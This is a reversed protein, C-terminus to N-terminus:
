RDDAYGVLEAYGRGGADDAGVRGKVSVAGEWYRPRTGLEQDALVPHLTLDLELVPVRLRWAAPYTGGRPSTWRDLVDLQVDESRIARARGDPTVWTGASHPDRSGDRLRLSYFMLASGEDLQLAFWDWGQQNAGLAGSGWERDLWALGNVKVPQEQSRVIEGRVAMRPVSYYYSAAGPSKRSLGREGNLVPALLPQLKLHIRFEECAAELRWHSEDAELRWNDVWVRLPEERAGALGLADRGYRQAFHFQRREIDTVAFHALYIQNTRWASADDVRAAAKPPALAYRFFTLEFGFREGNEGDLHGTLYWWEHRFEPHPGHDRPFEFARPQRAQAFGAAASENRLVDLRTGQSQATAAAAAAASLLIWFWAFSARMVRGADRERDAGTGCAM